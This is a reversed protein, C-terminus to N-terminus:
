DIKIVVVPLFREVNDLLKIATPQVRKKNNKNKTIRKLQRDNPFSVFFFLFPHSPLKM